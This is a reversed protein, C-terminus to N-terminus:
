RQAAVDAARQGRDLLTLREARESEFATRQSAEIPEGGKMNLAVRPNQQEGRVLIEFHLHPATALGTMGVYAITQGISVHAGARTARGFGSLHGYRSVFGNRHRVDVVNGYGNKRGAYIVVGDGISRVPTGMAAAYDTGKHARWVGLIPHKRMGFVSSIRRFELPARLFAAQLSKGDQDFYKAARDATGHRIAQLENGSLTFTAALIPGIRVAGQPGRSRQVLVRFEDGEQLDRSMDVRYEYIDALTWALETRARPPLITAASDMAQYLTSTILGRVTVTDVTWPLREEMSVWGSDTRQVHLLRDISLQFVIERPVSDEGLARVTVPMGAPVRRENIASASRIVGAAGDATLGARGLLASLTEGKGLTDVHQRWVPVRPAVALVAAPQRAIIPPTFAIAGVALLAVVSYTIARYFLPSRL